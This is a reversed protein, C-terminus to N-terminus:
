PHVHQSQVQTISALKWVLVKQGRTQQRFAYVNSYVFCYNHRHNQIPTFSPRQFLPLFVSQHHKLVILGFLSSNVSSQLFSCLSSSWLKYEEGLWVLFILDLFILPTPCTAHIPFILLVYLINTPFGSPLLGRPLDLCLYTFLILIFRIYFPTSHISRAWTLSWHFNRTFM